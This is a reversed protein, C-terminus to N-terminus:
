VQEHCDERRRLSEMVLARVLGSVSRCEKQALRKIKLYMEDDCCLNLRKERKEREMNEEWTAKGTYM